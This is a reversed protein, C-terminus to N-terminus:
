MQSSIRARLQEEDLIQETSHPLLAGLALYWDLLLGVTAAAFDLTRDKFVLSFCQWDQDAKVGKQKFFTSSKAGHLLATAETLRKESKCDQTRTDGWRILEAAGFKDLTVCVWRPTSKGDSNNYKILTSGGQLVAIREHLRKSKVMSILDSADSADLDAAKRM